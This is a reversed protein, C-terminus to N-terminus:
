ILDNRTCHIYDTYAPAQGGARLGSAIQGRHYSSHLVVHAMVDSLASVWKEGQSNTYAIPRSLDSTALSNLLTQWGRALNGLHLELQALTLDPWVALAPAESRVRTLWLSEAAVIHAMVKVLAAASGPPRLSALAERNAWDDFTFQRAFHRMLDM